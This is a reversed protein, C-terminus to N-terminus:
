LLETNSTEKVKEAAVFSEKHNNEEQYRKKLKPGYNEKNIQRTRCIALAQKPVNETITSGAATFSDEKIIVPAVITNNSGIFVNDEIITKNKSVGNFNCTITGAGINTNKGITTNGLYSLHKAKSHSGLITNKVEVFNGVQAQEKVITNERIYAFPGISAGSSIYADNIISNPYVTVENELISNEIISNQEIICNKGIRTGKNIHVACGINSGQGVEIDLDLHVTHAIGFRVGKEMWHKILEARKVQEAAWLEQLNNIGRIQDFPANVTCITLEQDSAIKVLDTLYFEKTVKSKEIENISDQLFEKKILYIGANITCAETQQGHFEKAEIIEITKGDEVVRGYSHNSGTYCSTVFSIVADQEIHKKYLDMIIDKTVLPMDGNMILIHEKDWKKQTCAVAHGTGHQEQQQIFNVAGGHKKNIIEQIQEKQYGLVVTTPINLISFLNTSFLIMEQGCITEVLKSKGTQFRSSKGAALVIAQMKQGFM